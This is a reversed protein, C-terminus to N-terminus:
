SEDHGAQVAIQSAIVTIGTDSGRRDIRELDCSGQGLNLRRGLTKPQSPKEPLCQSFKTITYTGRAERGFQTGFSIELM